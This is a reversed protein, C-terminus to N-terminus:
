IARLKGLPFGASGSWSSLRLRSSGRLGDGRWSRGGAGNFVKVRHRRFRTCALPAKGEDCPLPHDNTVCACLYSGILGKGKDPLGGILGLKGIALRDPWMWTIGRMTYSSARATQLAGGISIEAKKTAPFAVVTGDSTTTTDIMKDRQAAEWSAKAAADSMGGYKPDKWPESM